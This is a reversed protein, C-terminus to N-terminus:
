IGLLWRLIEVATKGRVLNGRIYTQWLHTLAHFAPDPEVHPASVLRGDQPLHTIDVHVRCIWRSFRKLERWQKPLNSPFEVPGAVTPGLHGFPDELVVHTDFGNNEYLNIVADTLNTNHVIYDDKRFKFPYYAVPPRYAAAPAILAYYPRYEYTSNLFQELEGISPVYSWNIPALRQAPM